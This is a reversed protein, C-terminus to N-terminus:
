RDPQLTDSVLAVVGDLQGAEEQTASVVLMLVESDVQRLFTRGSLPSNGLRGTWNVVVGTDTTRVDWLRFGEGRELKSIAIQVLEDDILPRDSARQQVQVTYAVEGTPSEVLAVGATVSTQYDDLVGVQFQGPERYVTESLSLGTTDVDAFVPLTESRRPAPDMSLAEQQSVMPPPSAEPMVPLESLPNKSEEDTQVMKLPSSLQGMALLPWHGLLGISLAVSLILGLFWSYGKM